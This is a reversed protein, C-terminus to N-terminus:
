LDQINHCYPRLMTSLSDISGNNPQKSCYLYHSGDFTKQILGFYELFTLHSLAEGTAFWKQAFPFDEWTAIHLDWHMLSAIHFPTLPHKNLIQLIEHCRTLHHNFLEKLRAQFHRFVRRHGPFVYKVKLHAIKNLSKLYDLLPTDSETWQSINPTIEELLHDGAFLIEHVPEYLCMHGKTHGPTHLCQFSFDQYDLTENEEVPTFPVHGQPRYKYGPHNNRAEFLDKQPLGCLEAYSFLATWDLPTNIYKATDQSAFVQGCCQSLRPVLGSHDSHMHTVFIDTSELHTKTERFGQLIAEM